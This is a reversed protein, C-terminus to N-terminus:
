LLEDGRHRRAPLVMSQPHATQLFGADRRVCGHRREGSQGARAAGGRGFLGFGGSDFGMASTTIEEWFGRLKDVRREPANGAIIAANIAGISVGVISDPHLGNEALAEYVGAQYAGLAGGGQLLLAVRDFPLRARLNRGKSAARPEPVLPGEALTAEPAVRDRLAITPMSDSIM